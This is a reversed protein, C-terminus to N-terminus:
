LAGGTVAVRHPRACQSSAQMEELAAGPSGSDRKQVCYASLTRFGLTVPGRCTCSPHCTRARLRLITGAWATSGARQRAPTRSNSSSIGSSVYLFVITKVCIRLSLSAIEAYNLRFWSLVTFIATNAYSTTHTFCCSRLFSASTYSM